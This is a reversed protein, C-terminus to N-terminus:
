SRFVSDPVLGYIFGNQAPKVCFFNESCTLYWQVAATPQATSDRVTFIMRGSGDEKYFDPEGDKAFVRGWTSLDFWDMRKNSAHIDIMHNVQSFTISENYAPVPDIPEDTKGPHQHESIALGLQVIQAANADTIIGQLNTPYDGIRQRMLSKLLIGHIPALTGSANVSPVILEPYTTRSLGLLNGSTLTTMFYYIGNMWTPTSTVGPLALYDTAATATGLVHGAQVTIVATRAQKNISAVFPLQGISLGTTKQTVLTSDFIEVPMGQQLLNAGFEYDFTYTYNGAATGASSVATAQAILGQNGTINHLSIDQYRMLNPLGQKMNKKYANWVSLESTGTSRIEKITMQYALQTSFYTQFMQQLVTSTGPAFAGGDLNMAGYQGGPQVELPIRFDGTSGHPTDTILNSEAKKFKKYLLNNKALEYLMPIEGPRIKEMNAQLVNAVGSM